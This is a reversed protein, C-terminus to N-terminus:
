AARRSALTRAHAHHGGGGRGTRRRGRAVEHQDGAGSPVQAGVQDLAEQGGPLREAHEELGAGVGAGHVAQRDLADGAIQAVGGGHGQGDAVTPADEVGGGADRGDVAVGPVAAVDEVGVDEACSVQEGGRAGGLDLADHDGAGEARDAVVEVVGGAGGVLGDREKGELAGHRVLARLHEDLQLRQASDGVPEVDDDRGRAGDDAGVVVERRAHAAGEAVVGVAAEAGVHRAAELEDGRAVDDRAVEEGHVAAACAV